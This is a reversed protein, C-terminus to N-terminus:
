LQKLLDPGPAQSFLVTISSVTFWQFQAASSQPKGNRWLLLNSMAYCFKAFPVQETVTVSLMSPYETCHPGADGPTQPHGWNRQVM